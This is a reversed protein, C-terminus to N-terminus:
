QSRHERLGTIQAVLQQPELSQTVEAPTNEFLKRLAALVASPGWGSRNLVVPFSAAIAGAPALTGESDGFFLWSRLPYSGPEVSHHGAEYGLEGLEEFAAADVSIAPPPVILSGAPDVYVYPADVFRFGARKLPSELSALYYITEIPLLLAEQDSILALAHIRLLGELEVELPGALHVVLADLVRPLSHTRAILNSSRYLLHFAKSGRGKESEGVQLSFNPPADVGQAHYPALARDLALTVPASNTRM